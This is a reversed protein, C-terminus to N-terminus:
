FHWAAGRGSMQTMAAQVPTLNVWKVIVHPAVLDECTGSACWECKLFSCHEAGSQGGKEKDGAESKGRLGIRENRNCLGFAAAKDNERAFHGADQVFVGKAQCIGGPVDADIDSGVSHGHAVSVRDRNRAEHIVVQEARAFDVGVRGLEGIAAGDSEVPAVVSGCRRSTM